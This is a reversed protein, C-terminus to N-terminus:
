TVFTKMVASRLLLMRLPTPYLLLTTCNTALCVPTDTYYSHQYALMGDYQSSYADSQKGGNLFLWVYCCYWIFVYISAAIVIISEGTGLVFLLRSLQRLIFWATLLRLYVGAIWVGILHDLFIFSYLFGGRILWSTLHPRSCAILQITWTLPRSIHGLLRMLHKTFPSLRLQRDDCGCRRSALTAGWQSTMVRVIAM